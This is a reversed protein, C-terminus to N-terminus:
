RGARGIKPIFRGTRDRYAAYGPYRGELWSEERASKLFLWGALLATLALASLSARVLAWGLAVLIVGGYTPHRVIGYVGSEVLAARDSPMPLATAGRGLDRGARLAVIAGVVISAAGIAATALAVTGSWDPQLTWGAAGALVFVIGQVLVWGEGRPGLAPLRM